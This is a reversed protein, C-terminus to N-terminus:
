SYFHVSECSPDDDAGDGPPEVFGAFAGAAAFAVVDTAAATFATVM